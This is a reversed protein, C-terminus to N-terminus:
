RVFCVEWLGETPRDKPFRRGVTMSGRVAHETHACRYERMYSIALRVGEIKGALRLQEDPNDAERRMKVLTLDAMQLRVRLDAWWPGYDGLESINM